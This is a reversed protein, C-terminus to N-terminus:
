DIFGVAQAAFFGHVLRFAVQGLCETYLARAALGNRPLLAEHVSCALLEGEWEFNTWGYKHHAAWHGLYDHVIRFAVNISVPWAPHSCNTLSVRLHGSAIHAIMEEACSYPSDVNVEEVNILHRIAAARDRCDNGLQNWAAAVASGPRPFQVGGDIVLQAYKQAITRALVSM